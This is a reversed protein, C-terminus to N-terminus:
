IEDRTDHRMSATVGLHELHWPQEIQNERLTLHNGNWTPGLPASAMLKKVWKLKNGNAPLLATSRASEANRRNQGETPVEIAPHPSPCCHRLRVFLSLGRLVEDRTSLVLVAVSFHGEM